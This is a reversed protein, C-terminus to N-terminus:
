DVDINDLLEKAEQLKKRYESYNFTDEADDETNEDTKRRKDKTIHLSDPKLVISKKRFRAIYPTMYKDISQYYVSVFHFGLNFGLSTDYNQKGFINVRGTIDLNPDPTVISLKNLTKIKEKRKDDGGYKDLEEWYVRYINGGTEWSGNIISELDSGQYGSSCFIVIKEKLEKMELELLNPNNNYKYKSPLLYKRFHTTIHRTLRNLTGINNRTKLDLSIFLPDSPNPVGEIKGDALQKNIKFAHENIVKCVDEFNVSNFCLKWEGTEFGNNVVPEINKVGFKDNFIKLEIYRAGSQLIGKLIDNCNMYSLLPNKVNCSNYSSAIYHNGLINHGMTKYKYNTITQYKDYAKFNNVIKKVRFGESFLMIILIFIVAFVGIAILFINNSLPNNRKLLGYKQKSQTNEGGITTTSNVDDNKTDNKADNKADNTNDNKVDNKTDNTNDNNADNKTDNTNDNNADNNNKTDM